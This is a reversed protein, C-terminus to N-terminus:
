AFFGFKEEVEKTPMGMAKFIKQQIEKKHIRVSGSSLESGNLVLDYARSRVKTPESDLLDLDDMNPSTFPHHMSILQKKGEDYEFLPFETIWVFAWEDTKKRLDPKDTKHSKMSEAYTMRPFPTKLNVGLVEKWVQKWLGEM